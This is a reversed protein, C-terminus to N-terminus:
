LERGIQAMRIASERLGGERARNGWHDMFREVLEPLEEALLRLSKRERTRLARRIAWAAMDAGIELEGL